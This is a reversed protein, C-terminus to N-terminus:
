DEHKGGLNFRPIGTGDLEVQVKVLEGPASNENTFGLKQAIEAFKVIQMTTDFDAQTLLPESCEPCPYNIYKEYEEFKISKDQYDCNSNDCKLGYINLEM